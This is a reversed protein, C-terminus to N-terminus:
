YFSSTTLAISVGLILDLCVLAGAIWAGAGIAAWAIFGEYGLAAVYAALDINPALRHPVLFATVLGVAVFMSTQWVQSWNYAILFDFGKEARGIRQCFSLALLPFATWAVVYGITEVLLINTLSTRAVTADDLRLFLLALFGPYCLASAWFSKWVAQHSLDFYHMGLRDLRALRGAAYLAQAIEGREPM